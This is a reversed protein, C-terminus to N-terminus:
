YSGVYWIQIFDLWQNLLYDASVLAHRVAISVLAVNHLNQITPHLIHHFAVQPTCTPIRIVPRNHPAGMSNHASHKFNLRYGQPSLYKSMCMVDM